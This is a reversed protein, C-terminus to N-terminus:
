SGDNAVIDRFGVRQQRELVRLLQGALEVPEQRLESTSTRPVWCFSYKLSITKVLYPCITSTPHNPSDAITRVLLFPFKRLVSIIEAGAPDLRPRGGVDQTQLDTRGIKIQHLRAVRRISRCQVGFKEEAKYWKRIFSPVSIHNGASKPAVRQNSELTKAIRHGAGHNCEEDIGELIENVFYEKTCKQGEPLHVLKLL